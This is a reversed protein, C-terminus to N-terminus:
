FTFLLNVQSELLFLSRWSDRVPLTLPFIFIKYPMFTRLISFSIWPSPIRCVQEMVVLEKFGQRHGSSGYMKTKIRSARSASFAISPYSDRECKAFSLRFGVLNDSPCSASLIFYPSCFRFDLFMPLLSWEVVPPGGSLCKATSSNRRRSSRTTRWPNM